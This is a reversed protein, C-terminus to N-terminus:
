LELESEVYYKDVPFSESTVLYFPKNRDERDIIGQRLDKELEKVAKPNKTDALAAALNPKIGIVTVEEGGGYTTLKDGITFKSDENLIEMMKKAQGETIIGALQNMRIFGEDLEGYTEFDGIEELEDIFSELTQAINELDINEAKEINAEAIEMAQKLHLKLKEIENM